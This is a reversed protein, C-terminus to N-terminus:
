KEEPIFEMIDDLKCDLAFCINRLAETSVDKGKGMQTMTYHSVGALKELESKTMKKDLLLHWLKMYSVAM